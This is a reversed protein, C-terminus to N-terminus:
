ALLPHRCAPPRAGSLLPDGLNSAAKLVHPCLRRSSRTVLIHGMLLRTTQARFGPHAEHFAGTLLALGQACWAQPQSGRRVWHKECLPEICMCGTM